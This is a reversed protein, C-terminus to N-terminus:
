VHGTYPCCQPQMGPGGCRSSDGRGADVLRRASDSASLVLAGPAGILLLAAEIEAPEIRVGRIKLQGDRRGTCVLNGDPLWYGLDGTRYLRDSGDAALFARASAQEDDLYGRALCRGGLHIEGEVHPECDNGAGDLVRCRVGTLPRGVPIRSTTVPARVEYATADM